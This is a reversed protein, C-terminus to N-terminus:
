RRWSLPQCLTQARETMFFHLQARGTPQTADILARGLYGTTMPAGFSSLIETYQADATSLNISAFENLTDASKLNLQAGRLPGSGQGRADDEVWAFDLVPTSLQQRSWTLSMAQKSSYRAASQKSESNWLVIEEISRTATMQRKRSHLYVWGTAKAPQELFLPISHLGGDDIGQQEYTYPMNTSLKWTSGDFQFAQHKYDKTPTTAGSVITSPDLWSVVFGKNQHNARLSIASSLINGTLFAPLEQVGASTIIRGQIRTNTLRGGEVDSFGQAWVVSVEDWSLEGLSMTSFNQIGSAVILPAGQPEYKSQGGSHTFPVRVIDVENNNRKIAAFIWVVDLMPYSEVALIDGTFLQGLDLEVKSRELTQGRGDLSVLTLRRPTPEYISVTYTALEPEGKLLQDYSTTTGPQVEPNVRARNLNPLLRVKAGPFVLLGTDQGETGESCVCAGQQCSQGTGCVQGCAGCHEDDNRADVWRDQCCLMGPQGPEGDCLPPLPMDPTLDPEHGGMDDPPALDPVDLKMDPRVDGMDPTTNNTTNNTSPQTPNESMGFICGSLCLCASLGLAKFAVQNM